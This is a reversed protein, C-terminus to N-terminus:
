FRRDSFKYLLIGLFKVKTIRWGGVVEISKTIM